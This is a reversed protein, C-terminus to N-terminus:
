IPLFPQLILRAIIDLEALSVDIVRGGGTDFGIKLPTVREESRGTEGSSTLLSREDVRGLYDEISKMEVERSLVQEPTKESIMSFRAFREKVSPQKVAYKVVAWIDGRSLFGPKSVSWGDFQRGVEFKFM